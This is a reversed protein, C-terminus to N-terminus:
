WAFSVKEAQPLFRGACFKVCSYLCSLCLRCFGGLGILIASVIVTLAVLDFTNAISFGTLASLTAVLWSIGPDDTVALQVYSRGTFGTTVTGICERGRAAQMMQIYRSAMLRFHAPPNGTMM